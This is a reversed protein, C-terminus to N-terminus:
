DGKCIQTGVSVLECEALCTSDSSNTWNAAIVSIKSHTKDKLKTACKEFMETILSMAFSVKGDEKYCYYCLLRARLNQPLEKMKVMELYDILEMM